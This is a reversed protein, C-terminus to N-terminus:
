KCCSRCSCTSPPGQLVCGDHLTPFCSLAQRGGLAAVRPRHGVATIPAAEFPSWWLRSATQTLCAVEAVKQLSAVHHVLCPLHPMDPSTTKQWHASSAECWRSRYSYPTATAYTVRLTTQSVTGLRCNVRCAVCITRWGTQALRTNRLAGACATRQGHLWPVPTSGM